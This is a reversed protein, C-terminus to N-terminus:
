CLRNLKLLPMSMMLQKSLKHLYFVNDLNNLTGRLSCYAGFFFFFCSEHMHFIQCIIGSSPYSLIEHDAARRMRKKKKKRKKKKQVPYEERTNTEVGQQKAKNRQQKADSREGLVQLCQGPIQSWMQYRAVNRHYKTESSTNPEIRTTNSECRTDPEIGTTNSEVDLM